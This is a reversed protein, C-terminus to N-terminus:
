IATLRSCFRRLSLIALAGVGLLALSTPEPVSTAGGAGFNNRVNNLDALDITGNADTDGPGTGGFNNRVNNLDVLDVIGDGNTDGLQAPVVVPYLFQRMAYDDNHLMAPLGGADNSEMLIRAGPADLGPDANAVTYLSLGAAGINDPDLPDIRKAWSNTLTASATASNMPDYNDDLFVTAGDALEVDALGLAHGLEHTLLLEFDDVTFQNTSLHIDAGSIAFNGNYNKVGSTLEVGVAGFASVQAFGSGAALPTAFLDIESGLRLNGFGPTASNGDHVATSFDETFSITTGLGTAPDVDLWHNFANAFAQSFADQTPATNWTFQDFFAELSGGEVSYRLGGVLSREISGEDPMYVRSADNADWRWQPSGFQYGFTVGAEAAGVNLLGIVIFAFRVALQRTFRPRFRRM